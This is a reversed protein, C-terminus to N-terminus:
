DQALSARRKAENDIYQVWQGAVKESRKDKKAEVFQKRADSLKNLNYLSMGIVIYTNDRRRVGKRSLATKGADVAQKFMDNDFYINALRAWPEGKTSAEAAKEMYPLAAKNEQAASLANGMLQYNKSSAKIAERKFGEDLVQTAKYPMESGLFLYAMNILEQERNLGETVYATEYAILQKREQQLEGYIGSIQTWYERKPWKRILQELVEGVKPMDGKEYYLARMLLYWQEKPEKGKSEALRMAKEVERLASDYDQVQFYAQALLVHASPQADESLKFWDTLQKIAGNYDEVVFYLQALQYKTNLEMALPIDEQIIVNRYAEIVKPYNEQAYYVFAYFNYMNAKEYGNLEKKGTTNKLDDLIELAQVFDKEESAIQAASLKEYVANRLAPTRRTERTDKPKDEAAQAVGYSEIGPISSVIGPTAALFCFAVASNMVSKSLSYMSAKAKILMTM